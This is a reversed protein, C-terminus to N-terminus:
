APNGAAASLEEVQEAAWLAWEQTVASSRLGFDLALWACIDADGGTWNATDRLQELGAFREVVDRAFARLFAVRDAPPLAWLFFVRLLPGSRYTRETEPETLWTRLDSGGADTIAHERRNRAGTGVLEILGDEALRALEGYVQSQSAPWVFALSTDFRKLLDYGSAPGEALLGLLAHRLSM